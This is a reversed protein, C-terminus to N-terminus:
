PAPDEDPAVHLGPLRDEILGAARMAAISLEQWAAETRTGAFAALAGRLRLAVADPAEADADPGGAAIDRPLLQLSRHRHCANAIRDMTFIIPNEVGTQRNWTEAKRRLLCPGIEGRRRLDEHEVICQLRDDEPFGAVFRDIPDQFSIFSELRSRDLNVDTYELIDAALTRALAEPPREANKTFKGDRSLTLLISAALHDTEMGELRGRDIPESMVQGMHRRQWAESFAGAVLAEDMCANKAIHAKLRAAEARSELGLEERLHDAAYTYPHRNPSYM